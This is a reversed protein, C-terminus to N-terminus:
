TTSTQADQKRLTVFVGAVILAMLGVGVFRSFLTMTDAQLRNLAFATTFSYRELRLLGTLFNELFVIAVPGMLVLFYNSSYYAVVQGLSWLVCALLGKYVGWLLAFMMPQHVQLGGFCHKSLDILVSEEPTALPKFFHIASAIGLITSLLVTGFLLTMMAMSQKKLCAREGMRLSLYTWLGNKRLFFLDSAFFLPIAVSLFFDGYQSAIRFAIMPHAVQGVQYTQYTSTVMLLTYLLTAVVTLPLGRRLSLRYWM